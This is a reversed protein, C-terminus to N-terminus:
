LKLAPAKQTIKRLMASKKYKLILKLFHSFQLHNSTFPLNQLINTKKYLTKEPINDRSLFLRPWIKPENFNDNILPLKAPPPPSSSNIRKMYLFAFFQQSYISM